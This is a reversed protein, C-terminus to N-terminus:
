KITSATVIKGQHLPIPWGSQTRSLLIDFFKYEKKFIVAYVIYTLQISFLSIALHLFTHTNSMTPHTGDDMGKLLCGQIDSTVSQYVGASCRILGHSDLSWDFLVRYKEPSLSPEPFLVHFLKSWQSANKCLITNEQKQRKAESYYWTHSSAPKNHGDQYCSSLSAVHPVFCLLSIWLCISDSGQNFWAQKYKKLEMVGYIEKM